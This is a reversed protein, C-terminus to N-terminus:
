MGSVVKGFEKVKGWDTFDAVTEPHTTGDTVYMILRIMSRDFFRYKKYDIKGAFVALKTPQWPVQKLFKKLYPNTDPENKDPKRAVM